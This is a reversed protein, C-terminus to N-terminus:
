VCHTQLVSELVTGAEAKGLRFGEVPLQRRQGPTICGVRAPTVLIEIRDRYFIASPTYPVVEVITYEESFKFLPSPHLSM